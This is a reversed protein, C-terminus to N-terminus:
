CADAYKAEKFVSLKYSKLYLYVMKYNIHYNACVINM